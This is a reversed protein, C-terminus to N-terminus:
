VSGTPYGDILWTVQENVHHTLPIVAGKKATWKVFTVNTGHLYQRALLDNVKEVPHADLHFLQAAASLHRSFNPITGRNPADEIQSVLQPAVSAAPSPAARTHTLDTM